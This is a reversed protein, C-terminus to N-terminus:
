DGRKDRVGFSFSAGEVAVIARVVDQVFGHPVGGDSKVIVQPSGRKVAQEVESRIGDLTVERKGEVKIVPKETASAAAKISIMLVNSSEVGVGKKAPPVDLEPTGQMTSSVMFFILLLFTMDIMPTIDFDATSKKRLKPEWDEDDEITAVGVGTNQAVPSDAPTPGHAASELLRDGEKNQGGPNGLPPTM